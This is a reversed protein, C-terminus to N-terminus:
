LLEVKTRSKEGGALRYIGLAKEGGGEDEKTTTSNNLVLRCFVFINEPRMGQARSNTPLKLYQINPLRVTRFHYLFLSGRLPAAPRQVQYRMIHPTWSSSPIVLVHVLKHGKLIAHTRRRIHDHTSGYKTKPGDLTNIAMRIQQVLVGAPARIVEFPM